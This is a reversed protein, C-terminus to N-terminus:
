VGENLVTSPNLPNYIPSPHPSPIGTTHDQISPPSPSSPNSMNLIKKRRKYSRSFMLDVVDMKPKNLNISTSNKQYFSDVGLNKHYNDLDIFSDSSRKPNSDRAVIQKCSNQSSAMHLEEIQMGKPDQYNEYQHSQQNQNEM